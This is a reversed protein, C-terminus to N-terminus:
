QDQSREARRKEEVKHDSHHNMATWRLPFAEVDSWGCSCAARYHKKGRQGWPWATQVRLSHLEAM